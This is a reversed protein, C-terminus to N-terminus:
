KLKLNVQLEYINKILIKSFASQLVVSDVLGSQLYKAVLLSFTTPSATTGAFSAETPNLSFNKSVLARPIRL